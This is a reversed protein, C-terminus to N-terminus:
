TPFVLERDAYRHIQERALLDDRHVTMSDARGEKRRTIAAVLRENTYCSPVIWLQARLDSAVVSKASEQLRKCVFEHMILLPYRRSLNALTADNTLCPTDYPAVSLRRIM